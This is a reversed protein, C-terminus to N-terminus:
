SRKNKLNKLITDLQDFRSEWMVRFPQLWKDVEKLKKSNFYYYIERGVQEQNVLQCESLIKVHKSIAQRSRHFNVALANPTMARAALMTLIERRTPDAIAQFVDRRM